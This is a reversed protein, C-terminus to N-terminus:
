ETTGGGFSEAVSVAGGTIADLLPDDPVIIWGNEGKELHITVEKTVTKDKNSDIASLLIHNMSTEMEEDSLGSFALPLMKSFSDSIVTFLDTNTISATVTATDGDKESSLIEFTMNGMLKKGLEESTLDEVSTTTESSTAEDTAGSYKALTELDITQFATLYNTVATEPSEMSSCGVFSFMLVMTSLLVVLKKFM